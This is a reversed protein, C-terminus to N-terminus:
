RGDNEGGPFQAELAQDAQFWEPRIHVNPSFYAAVEVLAVDGPNDLNAVVRATCQISQAPLLEIDNTTQPSPTVTSDRQPGHVSTSYFLTGVQTPVQINYLEFAAGTLGSPDGLTSQSRGLGVQVSFVVVVNRGAGGTQAPTTGLVRAFFLFRWTEPRKYDIRALQSTPVSQGSVAKMTETTGWLHWPPAGVKSMDDDEIETTCGAISMLLAAVAIWHLRDRPM